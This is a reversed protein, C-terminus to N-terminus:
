PLERRNCRKGTVRKLRRAQGELCVSGMRESPCRQILVPLPIRNSGWNRHLNRVLPASASDWPVAGGVVIPTRYGLEEVGSTFVMLLVKARLARTAQATAQKGSYGGICLGGAAMGARSRTSPDLPFVRRAQHQGRPHGLHQDGYAHRHRLVPQRGAL